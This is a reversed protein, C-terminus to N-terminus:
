RYRVGCYMYAAMNFKVGVRKYAIRNFLINKIEYCSILSSM